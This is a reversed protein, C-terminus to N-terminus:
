PTPSRPREELVTKELREVKQVIRSLASAVAVGLIGVLVCSGGQTSAGTMGMVIGGIFFIASLVFVCIVSLWMADGRAFSSQAIHRAGRPNAKADQCFGFTLELGRLDYERRNAPGNTHLNFEERFRWPSVTM